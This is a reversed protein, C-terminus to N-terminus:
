RSENNLLVIFVLVFFIHCQSNLIRFCSQCGSDDYFETTPVIAFCLLVLQPSVIYFM